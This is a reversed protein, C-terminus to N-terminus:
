DERALKVAYKAHITATDFVPIDCHEQKVLLPIETCGLIAGKAGAAKCSDIVQLFFERSDEKIIGCDLEGQIIKMMREYYEEDPVITEIGYKNELIDRYFPLKMTLPTGLLAAKDIGMETMADAVADVIHVIPVGIHAQVEPVVLHTTNACFLIMEAGAQELTRAAMTMYEAAEAIRGAELNGYCKEQNASFLIIEPNDGTGMAKIGEKNIVDYYTITSEYSTGGILGIRKM